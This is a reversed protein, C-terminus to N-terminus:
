FHLSYSVMLRPFNSGYRLSYYETNHLFTGTVVLGVAEKILEAPLSVAVDFQAFLLKYGVGFSVEGQDFALTNSSFIDELSGTLYQKYGGRFDVQALEGIHLGIEAGINIFRKRADGINKLDASVLLNFLPERTYYKRETPDYAVGINATKAAKDVLSRLDSEILEGNEDFILGFISDIYAGVTLQGLYYMAGLGMEIHNEVSGGVLHANNILFDYDACHQHFVHFYLKLHLKTGIDTYL